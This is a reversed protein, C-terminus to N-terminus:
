CVCAALVFCRTVPNSAHYEYLARSCACPMTFGCIRAEVLGCDDHSPDSNPCSKPDCYSICPFVFRICPAPPSRSSAEGAGHSSVSRGRHGCRFVSAFVLRPLCRPLISGGCSDPWPCVLMVCMWCVCPTAHWCAAPLPLAAPPQTHPVGLVGLVVAEAVSAFPVVVLAVRFVCFFSACM